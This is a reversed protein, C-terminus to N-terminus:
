SYLFRLSKLGIFLLFFVIWANKVHNKMLSLRISKQVLLLLTVQYIFHLSNPKAVVSISLGGRVGPWLQLDFKLFSDGNIQDRIGNLTSLLAMLIFLLIAPLM